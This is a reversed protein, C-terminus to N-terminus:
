EGDEPPALAGSADIALGFERIKRYLTKRDIGLSAATKKQHWHLSRLRGEIIAREVDRLSLTSAALEEVDVAPASSMASGEPPPPLTARSQTIFRDVIPKTVKGPAFALFFRASNEVERVNGPWDYASLAAMADAEVRPPERNEIKAHKMLLHEILEPVDEKRERLTPLRVKLVALRYYLDERFEGDRVRSQLDRNTAAIVRVDVKRTEKGGVRRIEGEQLVRLLSAQMEKSMEGVEDLLLTGGHALEFLGARDALAGTFAGRMHGFLESEILGGAVAACNLTLFPKERRPSARHVARAVIEKGTGSEGEILVPFATDAVRDILKLVKAVAPSRGIIEPYEHKLSLEERARELDARTKELEQGQREVKEELRKNLEAIKAHSTALDDRLRASRYLASVCNAVNEFFRLDDGSYEREARADVYLVGAAGALEPPAGPAASLPACLAARLGLENVSTANAIKEGQARLDNAMFARGSDLVTKVVTFSPKFDAGQLRTGRADLGVVFGPDAGAARRSAVFGREAATLAIAGKLAVQIADDSAAGRPDALRSTAERLLELFAATRAEADRPRLAGAAVTSEHVAKGDHAARGDAPGAARENGSGLSLKRCRQSAAEDGAERHLEAARGYLEAAGRKDGALGRAVAGGEVARAVGPADGAEIYADRAAEWHARARLADREDHALEGLAEFARGRARPDRARKAADAAARLKGKASATDGRTRAERAEVLLRQAEGPESEAQM